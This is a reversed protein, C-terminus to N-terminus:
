FRRPLQTPYAPPESTFGPAGAGFVPPEAHPAQANPVPQTAPFGPAGVGPTVPDLIETLLKAADGGRPNRQHRQQPHPMSPFPQAYPNPQWSPHQQPHQVFQQHSAFSQQHQRQQQQQQRRQQNQIRQDERHQQQQQRRQQNQIRQEDRQQQQAHQWADQRHEIATVRNLLSGFHQEVPTVDVVPGEPSQIVALTGAGQAGQSKTSMDIALHNLAQLTLGVHPHLPATLANIGDGHQERKSIQLQRSVLWNHTNIIKDHRTMLLMSMMMFSSYEIDQPDSYLLYQAAMTEFPGLQGAKARIEYESKLKARANKNDDNYEQTFRNLQRVAVEESDLWRFFKADRTRDISGALKATGSDTTRAAFIARDVAAQAVNDLGLDEFAKSLRKEAIGVLGAASPVAFYKLVSAVHEVHPDDGPGVDLVHPGRQM